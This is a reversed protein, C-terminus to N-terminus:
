ERSRSTERAVALRSLARQPRLWALVAFGILANTVSKLRFTVGVTLGASVPLGLAAFIVLKGGEQVGLSAPIVFSVFSVMVSFAQITFSTLWLRPLGIWGMVLWVQVVGIGLGALVHLASAVFDWPRSGYLDQLHEDVRELGREMRKVWSGLFRLRASARRAPGALGRVQLLMFTAVGVATLTFGIVLGQVPLREFKLSWSAVLMGLIVFLARAMAQSLKSSLLSATTVSAPFQEKLLLVKVPEGYLPGAPANDSLAGGGLLVLLLRPFTGRRSEIPLTYWWARANLSSVVLDLAVILGLRWGISRLGRWVEASGFGYLIYALLAAGLAFALAQVLRGTAPRSGAYARRRTISADLASPKRDECATLQRGMELSPSGHHPTM